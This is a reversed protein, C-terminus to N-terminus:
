IISKVSDALYWVVLFYGLNLSGTQSVGGGGGM